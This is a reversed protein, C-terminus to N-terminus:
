CDPDFHQYYEPEEEVELKKLQEYLSKMALHCSEAGANNPDNIIARLMTMQEESPKWSPRLSKLWTTIKRFDTSDMDVFRFQGSMTEAWEIALNRMKEDEESWVPKQEKQKRLGIELGTKFGEEYQASDCIHEQEKQKELYALWPAIKEDTINETVFPSRLFNIIEKRIREDESESLEPFITEKLAQLAKENKPVIVVHKMRDLAEDYARAKEETSM